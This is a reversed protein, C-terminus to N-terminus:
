KRKRCFLQQIVKCLLSSSPPMTQEEEGISPILIYHHVAECYKFYTIHTPSLISNPKAHDLNM